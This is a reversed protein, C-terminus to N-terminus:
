ILIAWSSIWKSSWKFIMDVIQLTGVTGVSPHVM